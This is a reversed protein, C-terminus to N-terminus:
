SLPRRFGRRRVLTRQLPNRKAHRTVVPVVLRIRNKHFVSFRAANVVNISIFVDIVVQTESRQHRANGDQRRSLLSLLLEIEARCETHRVILFPFKRFFNALAVRHSTRNPELPGFHRHVRAPYCARRRTAVLDHLEFTGVVSQM